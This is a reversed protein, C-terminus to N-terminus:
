LIVGKIFAVIVGSVIGYLIISGALKFINSGIGNILGEKKYDIGASTLSHAFGTIPVIVGAKLTTAIKDFVHLGTLVSSVIIFIISVIGYAEDMTLNFIKYIILFIAQALVGMLGGSIFTILANKKKDDKYSKEEVIKKYEELKM